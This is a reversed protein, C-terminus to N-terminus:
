RGLLLKIPGRVASAIKPAVLFGLTIMVTEKLARKIGGKDKFNSFKRRVRAVKNGIPRHGELEM